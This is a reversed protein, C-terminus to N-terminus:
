GEAGAPDVLAYAGETSLALLLRSAEPTLAAPGRRVPGTGMAVINRNINM